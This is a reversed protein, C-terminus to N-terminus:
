CTFTHVIFVSNCRSCTNDVSLRNDSAAWDFCVRLNIGGSHIYLWSVECSYGDFSARITPGDM